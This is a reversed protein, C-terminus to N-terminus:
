NRTVKLTISYSPNAVNTLLDLAKKSGTETPDLDYVIKAAEVVSEYSNPKSKLFSSNLQEVNSDIGGGNPVL